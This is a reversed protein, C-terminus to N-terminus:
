LNSSLRLPVGARMIGDRSTAVGHGHKQGRRFGAKIIDGNRSKLQGAGWPMDKRFNGSYVDGNPSSLM